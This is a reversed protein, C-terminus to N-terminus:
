YWIKKKDVVTILKLTEKLVYSNMKIAKAFSHFAVILRTKNTQTYKGGDNRKESNFLKTGFQRIRM